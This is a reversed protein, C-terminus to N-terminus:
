ELGSGIYGSPRKFGNSLLNQGVKALRFLLDERWHAAQLQIAIPLGTEDDYDVPFSIGPIGTFNGHIMYKMLATTQSLNSEGEALVDPQIKPALIATAPSIWVDMQTKFLDEIKKMALSRVKQAALYDLSTLSGALALTCQMEGSYNNVNEKFYPFTRQYSETVISTSHSLHIEKMHPVEIEVITAGLSKFYDMAKKTEEIMRPEADEMHQRFFGIRVDELSEPPNIYNYLHVEPQIRSLCRFDHASSKDLYPGSMIAYALAVDNLSVGIAGLSQVTSVDKLHGPFRKYTPKLGIVGCLAAPLRVSGGGDTGIAFPVIGAAVVGASGSSSGGTFHNTNYPNRTTGYFKNYGTTSLGLEHQNTKGVFLGGERRLKAISPDDEDSYAKLFSTGNRHHYGKVAICDKAAFPVGDLVGMPEGIEYRTTSEKAEKLIDEENIMVILPNQDKTDNVLEIIKKAVDLPTIEKNKYKSTYDHITWFRFLCDSAANSDSDATLKETAPKISALEQISLPCAENMREHSEREQDSMSHIPYYLAPLDDYEDHAGKASKESKSEAAKSRQSVLRLVSELDNKRKLKSLVIDGILPVRLLKAFLLLPFGTVRPSSIPTLNYVSSTGVEADEDVLVTDTADDISGYYINDKELRKKDSKSM